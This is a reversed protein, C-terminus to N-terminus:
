GFYNFHLAYFRFLLSFYVLVVRLASLPAVSNISHTNIHIIEKIDCATM